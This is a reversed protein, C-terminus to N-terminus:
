PIMLFIAMALLHSSYLKVPVDYAFNLMVVNSMVGVCVLAGILRTRRFCLLLGGVVEAMGTFFNYGVSFGMFTWLLGMPSSEGYTQTLRGLHPLPFQTKIVKAFGYGIMASGLYFRLFVILWQYLKDYNARKRDVVSWVITAICSVITILLIQLYNWTTDGSGNPRVTIDYDFLTKGLWLVPADWILSFDFPVQVVSIPFPFIYLAFYVFFFRFFVKTTFNWQSQSLASAQDM